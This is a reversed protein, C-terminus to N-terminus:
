KREDKQFLNSHADCADGLATLAEQWCSPDDPFEAVLRDFAKAAKLVPLAVLYQAALTLASAVYWNDSGIDPFELVRRALSTEDLDLEHGFTRLHSLERDSLIDTV